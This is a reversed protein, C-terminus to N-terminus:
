DNDFRGSLRFGNLLIQALVEGDLGRVAVHFIQGLASQTHVDVVVEASLVDDNGAFLFNQGLQLLQGEADVGDIESGIGVAFAFGNSRMEGALEGVVAGPFLFLFGVVFRLTFVFIFIFISVPEAADAADGEVFDGFAGHLFSELMGAVDILIQDISLLRTTDQVAQDSVLNRRQEPVFHAAAKGGSAHLGDSQPQDDLTLAFDFGELLLFVPRDVGM